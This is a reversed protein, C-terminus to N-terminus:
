DDDDGGGGGGGVSPSSNADFAQFEAARVFKTAAAGASPCDTANAPDADQEGLFNPGGTCQSTKVVFRVHTARTDPIDFTRLILHPSVPRPSNGPFADAPSTYRRTYGADTACAGGRNADCTWVEFQRVATFRSQGSQLM